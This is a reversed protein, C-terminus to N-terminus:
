VTLIGVYGHNMQMCVRHNTRLNDVQKDWAATWVDKCLFKVTELTDIFRPRDRVLSPLSQLQSTGKCLKARSV